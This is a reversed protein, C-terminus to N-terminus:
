EDEDEDDFPLCVKPRCKEHLQINGGDLHGSAVYSYGSANSLRLTFMDDRGPEGADKVDVQYTYGGVGNIQATGKIQRTFADIVTYATVGTGKVTMGARSMSRAFDGLRLQRADLKSTRSGHDVYNLHGWFAGHKFGGSVGFTGKSGDPRTIWGGGTVFDRCVSPLTGPECASAVVNTMTVDAKAFDRGIFSGGTFTSAAGALITGQLNSTTMTTAEAVWWYVNCAQAGGSMLVSFNTGTLAGTLAGAGEFTGIRFIWVGDAPGSLTLQGTLAAAGNFCYVGPELVMGALTGTLLTCQEIPLPALLDWAAIFDAYAAAASADAKHISGNITCRTQVVTGAVSGVDGNIVSDTCTVAGGALVGYSGASKLDPTAVQAFAAQLPAASLLAAFLALAVRRATRGHHAAMRITSLTKM